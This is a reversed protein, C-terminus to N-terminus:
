NNEIIHQCGQIIYTMIEELSRGTDDQRAIDMMCSVMTGVYSVVMTTFASLAEDGTMPMFDENFKIRATEWSMEAARNAIAHVAAFLNKHRQNREDIHKINAKFKKKEPHIPKSNPIM